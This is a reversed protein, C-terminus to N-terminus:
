ETARAVLPERRVTAKFFGRAGNSIWIVEGDQISDVHVTDEVAFGQELAWRRTTGDQGGAGLHDQYATPIPPTVWRGGRWFFPTTISGEMVEGRNNMILVEASDGATIGLRGRAANYMDRKTTKYHTFPSAETACTDLHVTFSPLAVETLAASTVPALAPTAFESPYLDELTAPGVDRLVAKLSGDRLLELRVAQARDQAGADQVAADIISALNALGGPGSITDRATNWVWHTAARNLRDRHFDLMYHRSRHTSNWAAHPFDPNQYAAELLPDYRISSIINFEEAM